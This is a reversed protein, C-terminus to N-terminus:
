HSPHDLEEETLHEYPVPIGYTTRLDAAWRQFEELSLHEQTLDIPDM